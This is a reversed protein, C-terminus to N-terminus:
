VVGRGARKPWYALVGDLAPIMGGSGEGGVTASENVCLEARSAWARTM